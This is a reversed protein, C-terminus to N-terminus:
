SPHISPPIPHADTRDITPSSSSPPQTITQKQKLPNSRVDNRTSSASCKESSRGWARCRRSTMRPRTSSSRPTRSRMASSVFGRTSSRNTHHPDLHDTPRDTVRPPSTESRKEHGLFLWVCIEFPRPTLPVRSRHHGPASHTRHAGRNTGQAAAHATWVRQDGDAQSRSGGGADCGGRDGDRGSEFTGAVRLQEVGETSGELDPGRLRARATRRQEVEGIHGPRDDSPAHSADRRTRAHTAGSGRGSLSLGPSSAKLDPM